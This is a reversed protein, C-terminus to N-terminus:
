ASISGFRTRRMIQQGFHKHQRHGRYIISESQKTETDTMDINDVTVASALLSKAIEYRKQLYEEDSVIIPKSHSM